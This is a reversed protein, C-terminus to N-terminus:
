WFYKYGLTTSLTDDDWRAFGLRASHNRTFYTTGTVQIAEGSGNEDYDTSSHAISLELADVPKFRGGFQFVTGDFEQKVCYSGCVELEGSTPGFFAYLSVSAAPSINAGLALSAESQTIELYGDESENGAAYSSFRVFFNKHFGWSGELNAGALGEVEYGAVVVPEDFRFALLDIGLHTYSIEEAATLSPLMALAAALALGKQM